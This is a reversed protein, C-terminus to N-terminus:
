SIDYLVTCYIVPLITCTICTVLIEIIAKKVAWPGGVAHGHATLFIARGGMPLSFLGMARGRPRGRPCRGLLGHARALDVIVLDDLNPKPNPEEFAFDFYTRGIDLRQM